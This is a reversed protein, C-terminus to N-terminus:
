PEYAKAKSLVTNLIYAQRLSKKSKFNLRRRKQRKPNTLDKYDPNQTKRNHVARYQQPPTLPPSQLSPLPNETKPPTFINQEKELKQVLPESSRKQVQPEPAMKPEEQQEVEELWQSLDAGNGQQENQKEMVKNYIFSIVAFIILGILGDM